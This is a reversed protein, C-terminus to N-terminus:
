VLPSVNPLEKSIWFAELIVIAWGLRLPSSEIKMLAEPSINKRTAFMLLELILM